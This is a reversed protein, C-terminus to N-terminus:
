DYYDKDKMLWAHGLWKSFLIIAICGVFGFVADYVPIKQWWFHPHRNPFVFGLLCVILIGSYLWRRLKRGM